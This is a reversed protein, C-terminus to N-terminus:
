HAVPVPREDAATAQGRRQEERLVDEMRDLKIRIRRIAEIAKEVHDQDCDIVLQAAYSVSQLADRSVYRPLTM